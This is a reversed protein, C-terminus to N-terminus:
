KIRCVNRKGDFIHLVNWIRNVTEDPSCFYMVTRFVCQLNEWWMRTSHKCQSFTNCSTYHHVANRCLAAARSVVLGGFNRDRNEVACEWVSANQSMVSAFVRLCEFKLRLCIEDVRHVCACWDCRAVSLDYSPTTDCVGTRRTAARGKLLCLKGDVFRGDRANKASLMACNCGSVCWWLGRWTTRRGDPWHIISLKLLIRRPTRQPGSGM